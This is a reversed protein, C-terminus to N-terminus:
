DILLELGDYALFMNEPLLGSVEDHLGMEHSMHTFYTRKANVKKAIDIAENLSLHSIHSGQRLANLILIDLGQLEDFTGESITKADTIYAMDNIRFGLIPLNAHMVRIPKVDFGGVRFDEEEIRNLHIKPAGPYVNDGFCYPMMHRISNLVRQEGYVDMNGLPRVDDLGGVHDYHEHTLLIASISDVNHVLLQQRLDPGCDILVSSNNEKLLVSSRLRKDKANLSSCVKCKCGIQPVGTSTGTGLFLLEM